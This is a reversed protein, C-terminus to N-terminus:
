STAIDRVIRAIRDINRFERTMNESMTIDFHEELAALLDLMSLSDIGLSFLDDRSTPIQKETIEAAIRTIDDVIEQHSMAKLNVSTM